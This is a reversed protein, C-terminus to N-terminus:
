EHEHLKKDINNIIIEEIKESEKPSFSKKIENFGNILGRQYQMERNYFEHMTKYNIYNFVAAISLMFFGIFIIFINRLSNKDKHSDNKVNLKKIEEFKKDFFKDFSTIISNNLEIAKENISKELNSKFTKLEVNMEETIDEAERLKKDIARSIDNPVDKLANSILSSYYNMVKEQSLLVAFIPDDESIRIKLKLLSDTITAKIIEDFAKDDINFREKIVARNNEISQEILEKDNNM